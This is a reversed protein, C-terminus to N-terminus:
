DTSGGRAGRGDAGEGGRAPPGGGRAGRGQNGDRGGGGRGGGPGQRSGAGPGYRSSHAMFRNERLDLRGAARACSSRSASSSRRTSDVTSRVVRPLSPRSLPARKRWHSAWGVPVPTM